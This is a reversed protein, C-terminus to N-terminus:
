LVLSKNFHTFSGSICTYLIHLCHIIVNEVNKKILEGKHVSQLVEQSGM